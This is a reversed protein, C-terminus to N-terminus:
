SNGLTVWKSVRSVDSRARKPLTNHKKIRSNKEHERHVASVSAVGSM